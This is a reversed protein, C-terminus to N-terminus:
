GGTKGTWRPPLLRTNLIFPGRNDTLRFSGVVPLDYEVRFYIEAGGMENPRLPIVNIGIRM